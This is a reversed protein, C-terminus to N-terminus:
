SFSRLTGNSVPQALFVQKVAKLGSICLIPIQAMSMLKKWLEASGPEQAGFQNCPFALVMLGRDQYDEFLAELAFYQPTFGCASATNVILVVKGIYQQFDVADGNLTCCQFDALTTTTPM